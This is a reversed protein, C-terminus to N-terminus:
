ESLAFAVVSDGLTTTMRQNGGAAIVVYQRGGDRARYTMPTAQGGAPLRGKWLEEGTEVDFARLFDDMAAGVFVLGGATVLPGGLNPTGFRIAIPVPAVDRTTGLRTEWRVEGAGLEIAALTGWPPPTCPLGLPSLLVDRMLAYPTGAQPSVEKGPNAARAAEYDAREVLRVVHAVRSTNALVLGRAPDIAVSGWNSGGANGPYVITGRLSPPTFVGEYRLSRIKERCIRRDIPTLGFADEPSLSQPVLPPPRVPFPQTPWAEEGPVDSAPVPREEVPLLPEGTERHLVFLHGTKTAQVVAPLEAGDRRITALVPQAPVDYDWLDHHVSQFHWVIEGTSARLAVVSDAYDNRGRREGGYFDPSASGTPVFVLDREPDTSLPAWANAAGTRAASGDEWTAWAPDAESRPIPDWAWALAGTRAHYARVVGSAEDTRQNDGIQSGIIVLDGVVAPPSTVGYIGPRASEIGRALDVRGGEGFGDCPAGTAADLAFLRADTTALFIRRRCAAGSDVRADLWSSVGRCAPDARGISFDVGPDFSWREAGTEPDLAVVRHLPTCLYLAGDVLIPTAEFSANRWPYGRKVRALDGTSHIWAVRLRGVNERTIEDLPAYRSGGADRGYHPWDSAPGRAPPPAAESGCGAGAVLLAALASALARRV